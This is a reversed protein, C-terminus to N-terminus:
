VFEEIKEKKVTTTKPKETEGTMPIYLSEDKLQKNAKTYLKDLSIKTEKALQNVSKDITYKQEDEYEFHIKNQMILTHLLINNKKLLTDTRSHKKSTQNLPNSEQSASSHLTNTNNYAEVDMGSNEM